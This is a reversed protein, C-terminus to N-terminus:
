LQQKEADLEVFKSNNSRFEPVIAKMQNVLEMELGQKSLADLLAYSQEVETADYQRVKAILIKPNYTPLTNENNNLLEEYLKEGPRLGTFKIDMQEPYKYGSLRIMKVALDKIKVSKGMDFIFIEGGEGMTGAEIVLQCAEPITMFYRTIEPHTVTLPGGNKIQKTFLPIVSGNSGLVNGFRTTIFKTTDQSKNLTQIYIEALRKSAGMVNTPNVAKDTSVMVFKHTGYKVATDAMNRTGMVNVDVAALPYREMMPVHKYAAAHYVIQPKYQEFVEDIQKINRIDRILFEIELDVGSALLEVELEHLPSEAQDLVLLKSPKLRSIQRAIESGISGAAGTVLVTNGAVEKRTKPNELEIKPRDLLEEIKIDQIQPSNLEGNLWPQIHPIVKVKIDQELCYEVIENKRENGLNLVSVILADIKHRRFKGEQVQELDIIPLGHLLKGHKRKNDDAFAVPIFDQDKAMASFTLEGVEGAGFIIAKPAQKKSSVISRYFSRVTIRSLVLVFNTLLWHIVLVSVPVYHEAIKPTDYFYQVFWLLFMAMSSALVIRSADGLGSHRIVGAYSKFTIFGLSYAIVVVLEQKLTIFQAIREFDFEFRVAYAFMFIAACVSIDFALIVWRSIFSESWKNYIKSLM